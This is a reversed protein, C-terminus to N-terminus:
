LKTYNTLKEDPVKELTRAPPRGDGNNALWLFARSRSERPWAGLLLLLTQPYASWYKLSHCKQLESLLLDVRLDAADVRAYLARSRYLIIARSALGM